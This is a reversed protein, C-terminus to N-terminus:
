CLLYMCPMSLPYKSKVLLVLCKFLDLSIIYSFWWSQPLLKSNIAEHIEEGSEANIITITTRNGLDDLGDDDPGQLCKFEISVQSDDLQLESSEDMEITQDASSSFFSLYGQFSSPVFNQWSKWLFRFIWMNSNDNFRKYINVIGCIM